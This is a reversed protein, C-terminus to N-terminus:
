ELVAEHWRKRVEALLEKAAPEPWSGARHEENTMSLSRTPQNDHNLYADGAAMLWIPIRTEPRPVRIRLLPLIM